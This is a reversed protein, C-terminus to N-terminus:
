KAYKQMIKWYIHLRKWNQLKSFLNNKVVWDLEKAFASYLLDPKESKQIEDLQSKLIVPVLRHRLFRVGQGPKGMQEALYRLGCWYDEIKNITFNSKTISQPNHRYYYLFTNTVAVKPQKAVLAVMWPYDEYYIGEIFLHNKVLETRFLSTCVNFRVRYKQHSLVSWLPNKLVKYCVNTVKEEGIEIGTKLKFLRNVVMDVQTQEHIKYLTELYASHIYDDSDIFCIFDGSAAKIGVNRAGGVRKNEQDIIRIRPDKRAYEELIKWSNDTSGDNVCIIELNKFTQRIISDLCQRLYPETNFVPVIVTIKKM